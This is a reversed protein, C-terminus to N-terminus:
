GIRLSLQRQSTENTLPDTSTVTLGVQAGGPSQLSVTLSFYGNGDAVTDGTYNGANYTFIGGFNGVAGAVVHVQGGPVTRGQITFSSGVTAGNAPQALNLFNTRTTAGGNSAAAGSTFSWSRSFPAGNQDRGSV